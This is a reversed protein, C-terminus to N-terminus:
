ERFFIQKPYLDFTNRPYARGYNSDYGIAIQADGYGDDILQELIIKMTKVTLGEGKDIGDYYCSQVINGM